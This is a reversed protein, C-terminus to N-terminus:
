HRLLDKVHQMWPHINWLQSIAIRYSKEATGESAPTGSGESETGTGTSSNNGCGAAVIMSAVMMLSMWFKKKM